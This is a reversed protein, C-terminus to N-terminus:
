EREVIYAQDFRCRFGYDDRPLLEDLVARMTSFIEIEFARM